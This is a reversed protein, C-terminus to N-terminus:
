APTSGTSASDVAGRLMDLLGAHAQAPRGGSRKTGQSPQAAGATCDPQATAAALDTLHLHVEGICTLHM